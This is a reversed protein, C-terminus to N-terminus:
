STTPVEPCKCPFHRADTQTFICPFFGRCMVIVFSQILRRASVAVGSRPQDLAAGFTRVASRANSRLQDLARHHQSHRPPREDQVRPVPVGPARQVQGDRGASALNGTDHRLPDESTIRRAGNESQGLTRGGLVTGADDDDYESLLHSTLTLWLCCVAYFMYLPLRCYFLHLLESNRPRLVPTSM